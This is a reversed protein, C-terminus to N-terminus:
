SSVAIKFTAQQENIENEFGSGASDSLSYNTLTISVLEVMESFLFSSKLFATTSAVPATTTLKERNTMVTGSEISGSYVLRRTICM